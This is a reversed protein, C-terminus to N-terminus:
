EENIIENAMNTEATGISATGPLESTAIKNGQTIIGSQNIRTYGSVVTTGNAGITKYENEEDGEVNEMQEMLEKIEELVEDQAAIFEKAKKEDGRYVLSLHMESEAELMALIKSQEPTALVTVTTPLEKEVEEEDDTPVMVTSDTNADNGSKATVAIVEVYKLETPIITQGTKNFDSVIVSVIDGSMLKGSVGEAFSNITISIAQKEGNLNYLYENEKAPTDSVKESLIYDGDFLDATLYKGEIDEVNKIVTDPLNFKGVEVEEVMGSTIMAGAKANTKMRVITTKSSLGKNVLPTIAFCIILSVAICLIGLVTRNRFIKM